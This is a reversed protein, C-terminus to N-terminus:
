YWCSCVSIRLGINLSNCGCGVWCAHGRCLPEYNNEMSLGLGRASMSRNGVLFAAFQRDLPGHTDAVHRRAVVEQQNARRLPCQTPTGAPGRPALLSM